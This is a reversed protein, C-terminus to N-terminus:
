LPKGNLIAYVHASAFADDKLVYVAFKSKRTLKLWLWDFILARKIAATRQAQTM